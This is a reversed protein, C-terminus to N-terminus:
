PSAAGLLSREELKPFNLQVPHSLRHEQTKEIRKPKENLINSLKRHLTSTYANFTILITSLM